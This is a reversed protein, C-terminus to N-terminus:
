EARRFQRFLAFACAPLAFFVVAFIGLDIWAHGKLELGNIMPEEPLYWVIMEERPQEGTASSANYKKGNVTFEYTVNFGTIQIGGKSTRHETYDNRLHATTSQAGTLIKLPYVCKSSYMAVVGWIAFAMIGLLAVINEVKNNKQNL